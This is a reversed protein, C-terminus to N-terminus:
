STEMAPGDAEFESPLVFEANKFGIEEEPLESTWGPRSLLRNALRLSAFSRIKEVCDKFPNIFIRSARM